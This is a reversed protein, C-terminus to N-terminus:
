PRRYRLGTTRRQGARGYRSRLRAHRRLFEPGQGGIGGHYDAHGAKRKSQEDTDGEPQYSPQCRLNWRRCKEVVAQLLFGKQRPQWIVRHQFFDPQREVLSLRQDREHNEAHGVRRRQAALAAHGGRFDVQRHLLQRPEAESLDLRRAGFQERGERGVRHGVAHDLDRALPRLAEGGARRIKALQQRREGPAHAALLGEDIEREAGFAVDLAVEHVEGGGPLAKQRVHLAAIELGDLGGGGAPERDQLSDRAVGGLFFYAVLDDETKGVLVRLPEDLEQAIAPGLDAVEGAHAVRALEAVREVDHVLLDDHQREIMGEDGPPPERREQNAVGFKRAIEGVAELLQPALRHAVKLFDIEIRPARLFTGGSRLHDTNRRDLKSSM